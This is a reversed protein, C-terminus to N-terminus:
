EWDAMRLTEPDTGVIPALCDASRNVGGMADGTYSIAVSDPLCASLRSDFFRARVFGAYDTFMGLANDEKAAFASALTLSRMVRPHGYDFESASMDGGRSAHAAVDALRAGPFAAFYPTFATLFAVVSVARVKDGLGGRNELPIEVSQDLKEGAM